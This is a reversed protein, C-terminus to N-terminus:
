LFQYSLSVGGWLLDNAEYGSNDVSGDLMTYQLLAGVSLKESLAYDASVYVNYDNLSGEADDNGFYYKNYNQSGYGISGGIEASMADSIEVGQSIALNGYFGEAEDFDYYLSAVPTLLINNLTATVFLEETEEATNGDGPFTYFIMGVDVTVDDTNLPLTYAATYDLETTDQQDDGVLNLNGWVNLSFPGKAATVSPQVVARDNLVQGRWVYASFLGVDASISVDSPQQEVMTVDEAFVFGAMMGIAITWIIKKM